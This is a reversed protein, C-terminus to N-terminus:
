YKNYSVCLSSIVLNVQQNVFTAFKEREEELLRQLHKENKEQEQAVATKSLEQLLSVVLTVDIVPM